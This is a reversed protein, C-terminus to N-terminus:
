RVRVYITKIQDALGERKVTLTLAARLPAATSTPTVEIKAAATDTSDIFRAKFDPSSSKLERTGAKIEPALTVSVFKPGPPENLSWLLMRPSLTISEAIDVMLVLEYPLRDKEDTIVSVTRHQPGVAGQAHFTVKCVGQSGPEYLKRDTVASTCGCGSSIELIGVPSKGVNKFEFNVEVSKQDSRLAATAETANWKLEAHAVFCACLFVGVPLGGRRLISAQWNLTICM